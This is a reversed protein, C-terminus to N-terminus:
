VFGAGASRPQRFFGLYTGVDSAAYPPYTDQRSPSLGRSSRANNAGYAPPKAVGADFVRPRYFAALLFVACVALALGEAFLGVQWSAMRAWLTNTDSTRHDQLWPAEQTLNGERYPAIAAAAEIALVRKGLSSMHVGDDQLKPCDCTEPYCADASGRNCERVLTSYFDDIKVDEYKGDPGFLDRVAANVSVVDENKRKSSDYSPPVPTTTAFVITANRPLSQRLKKYLREMNRSYQGRPVRAYIEKSIDHLGWNVHAVSYNGAALYPDICALLGYSTGCYGDMGLSVFEGFGLGYRGLIANTGPSYQGAISDGVYLVNGGGFAAPFPPCSSPCNNDSDGDPNLQVRLVVVWFTALVLFTTVWVAGHPRKFTASDGEVLPRYEDAWVATRRGAAFAVAGSALVAVTLVAVTNWLAAVGWYPWWGGSSSGGEHIGSLPAVAADSRYPMLFPASAVGLFYNGRATFTGDTDQLTASCDCTAPYCASRRNLRCNTSAKEYLDDVAVGDAYAGTDGFLDELAADNLAVIADNAISSAPPEPTATAFTVLGDTSANILLYASGMNAVYDDVAVGALADEAGFGFHIASWNKELWPPLCEVFGASTACDGTNDENPYASLVYALGDGANIRGVDGGYALTKVDGLLLANYESWTGTDPVACECDLAAVGSRALLAAGAMAGVAGGRM